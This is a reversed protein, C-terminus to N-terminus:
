TMDDEGPERQAAEVSNIFVEVEEALPGSASKKGLDLKEYEAFMSRLWALGREINRYDNLNITKM